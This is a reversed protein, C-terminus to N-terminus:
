SAAAQLLLVSRPPLLTPRGPPRGDRSPERGDRSPERGVLITAAQASAGALELRRERRSLNTVLIQLRGDAAVALPIIGSDPCESALVPAGALAALASVIAAAETPQGASTLVGDPGAARFVTLADAGILRTAAAALYVAALPGHQREDAARGDPRPGANPDPRQQPDANPDDTPEPRHHPDANPDDTPEPRHHPDANPDDTPEPDTANFRPRLTIPGVVVPLGCGIIGAQVLGDAIAAETALISDDDDHHVQPTLGYTVFDWDSVDPASRNLEAFHARSGGGVPVERGAARLAARVAPVAADDTTHTAPSFVSVRGLRPVAGAITAALIAARDPTAVIAVDLPLRLGAAEEAAAALLEAWGARDVLEVQLHSPRLARVADRAGAAGPPASAALGIAPVAGIVESGIRIVVPDTGAARRPPGAHVRARLEVSQTVRQGATYRTARATGLPPCYTKWGPDSWNRHDETEFLEGALGIQLEARDAVQCTMRNFGTFVPDPSIRAPFTSTV